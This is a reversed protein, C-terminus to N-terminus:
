GNKESSYRNLTKFGSYGNFWDESGPETIAEIEEILRSLNGVVGESIIFAGTASARTLYEKAESYLLAIRRSETESRVLGYMAENMVKGFYIQLNSMDEIIKSYAERKSDWFKQTCNDPLLYYRLM